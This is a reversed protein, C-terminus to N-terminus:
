YRMAFETAITNASLFLGIQLGHQLPQHSRGLSPAVPGKVRSGVLILSSPRLLTMIFSSYVPFISGVVTYKKPAIGATISEGELTWSMLSLSCLIYNHQAAGHSCGTHHTQNGEEKPMPTASLTNQDLYYPCLTTTSYLKSACFAARFHALDCIVWVADTSAEDSCQCSSSRLINATSFMSYHLACQVGYTGLLTRRLKALFAPAESYARTPISISLFDAQFSLALNSSSGFTASAQGGRGRWSELAHICVRSDRL